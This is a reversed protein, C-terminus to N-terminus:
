FDFEVIEEDIGGEINRSIELRGESVTDVIKPVAMYSAQVPTNELKHNLDAVANEVNELKNILISFSNILRDMMEEKEVLNCIYPTLKRENGLQELKAYVDDSMKNGTLTLRKKEAM